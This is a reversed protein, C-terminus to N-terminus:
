LNRKGITSGFLLAFNNMCQSMTRCTNSKCSFFINIFFCVSIIIQIKFLSHHIEALVFISVFDLKVIHNWFSVYQWVFIRERFLVSKKNPGKLPPFLGGTRSPTFFSRLLFLSPSSFALRFFRYLLFVESYLLLHNPSRM